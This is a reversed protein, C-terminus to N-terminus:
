RFVGAKNLLWLTFLIIPQHAFYVWLSHRGLFRIPRTLRYFTGEEKTLALGPQYLTHGLAAGVLFWGIWPFLPMQDLVYANAASGLMILFPNNSWDPLVPEIIPAIFIGLTGLIILLGAFLHPRYSVVGEVSDSGEVAPHEPIWAKKQAMLEIFAYAVTSLAVVHIVNFLIIGTDAFGDVFITLATAAISFLVMRLGRKMGNRSFRSSIGSVSLFVALVLPRGVDYFWYDHQFAVAEVGYIDYLDGITHHFMMLTLAIGRLLDIEPIRRRKVALEGDM